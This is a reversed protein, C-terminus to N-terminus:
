FAVDEVGDMDPEWQEEEEWDDQYDYRRRAFALDRIAKLKAQEEPTRQQEPKGEIENAEDQLRLMTREDYTALEANKKAVKYQEVAKDALRAATKRLEDVASLDM